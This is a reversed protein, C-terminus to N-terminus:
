APRSIDGLATLASAPLTRSLAALSDNLHGLLRPM